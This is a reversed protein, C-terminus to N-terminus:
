RKQLSHPKRDLRRGVKKKMTSFFDSKEYGFSEDEASDPDDRGWVDISIFTGRASSSTTTTTTTATTAPTTSASPNESRM